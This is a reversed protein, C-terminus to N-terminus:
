SNIEETKKKWRENKRFDSLMKISVQSEDDDDDDASLLSLPFLFLKLRHVSNFLLM